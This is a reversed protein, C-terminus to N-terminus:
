QFRLSNDVLHPSLKTDSIQTETGEDQRVSPMLDSTYVPSSGETGSPQVPVAQRSEPDVSTRNGPLFESTFMVGQATHSIGELATKGAM